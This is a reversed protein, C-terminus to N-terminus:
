LSSGIIVDLEHKRTVEDRFKMRNIQKKTESLSKVKCMSVM